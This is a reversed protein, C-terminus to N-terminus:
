WQLTFDLNLHQNIITNEIIESMLFNYYHDAKLFTMNTLPWHDQKSLSCWVCITSWTKATERGKLSSQIQKATTSDDM